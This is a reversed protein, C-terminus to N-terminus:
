LLKPFTALAEGSFGFTSISALDSYSRLKSTALRECLLPYDNLDIGSGNDTITISNLGGEAISLSISSAGADRSNEMLEKIANAPRQLVEGAAIQNIVLDELKSIM